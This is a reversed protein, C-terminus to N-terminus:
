SQWMSRRRKGRQRLLWMKHLIFTAPVTGTVGQSAEMLHGGIWAAQLPSACQGVLCLGARLDQPWRLNPDLGCLVAAEKPHVWRAHGTISSILYFGRVGDRLLRYENFAKTRCGCPCERLSTSYSHLFCPCTEDQQLSRQDAGYVPNQLINLEDATLQLEEEETWPWHPWHPFLSRIKRMALDEPLDGIQKLNYEQPAM